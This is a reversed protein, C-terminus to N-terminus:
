KFVDKIWAVLLAIKSDIAQNLPDSWQLLRSKDIVDEIPWKVKKTIKLQVDM